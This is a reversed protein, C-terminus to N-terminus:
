IVCREKDGAVGLIRTAERRSTAILEAASRIDAASTYRSLSFRISRAAAHESIGMAMLVPSPGPAGAHCASGTSAALHPIRALLAESEISNPHSSDIAVNLIGPLRTNAGAAHDVVDGIRQKLEELLRIRLQKTGGAASSGSALALEAAVGFGSIAAVNLTGSRLGREQGGGTIEAHIFNRASPRVILAAAGQPGYMKHSSVTILDCAQLQPAPGWAMMQSADTHVLAGLSHALDAVEEIPQIVGTENNATHVSVVLVESTVASGLEDLDIEGSATVPVVRTPRDARGLHALTELISPHDTAATVIGRRGNGPRLGRLALNNAETASATFVVAGPGVDLLEAVAQRARDITRTANVGATHAAGPNGVRQLCEVTAALAEPALPTSAAADLYVIETM